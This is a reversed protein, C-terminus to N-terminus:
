LVRGSAIVLGDFRLILAERRTLDATLSIAKFKSGLRDLRYVPDSDIEGSHPITLHSSKQPNHFRCEGSMIPTNAIRCLDDIVRHRRQLGM